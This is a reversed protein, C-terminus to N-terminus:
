PTRVSPPSSARSRRRRRRPLASGGILAATVLLTVRSVLWAARPNVDIMNRLYSMDYNWEREVKDLGKWLVWSVM